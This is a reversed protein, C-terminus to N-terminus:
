WEHGIGKEGAKEALEILVTTENVQTRKIDANAASPIFSKISEVLINDSAAIEAPVPFEVGSVPMKVLFKM